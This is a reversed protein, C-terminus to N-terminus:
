GPHCAPYCAPYSPLLLDMQEVPMDPWAGNSKRMNEALPIVRLNAPCHLGCVIPHNLPVIHDVSHRIGTLKTLERAHKFAAAIAQRDAWAPIRSRVVRDRYTSQMRPRPARRVRGHAFLPGADFGGALPLSKQM